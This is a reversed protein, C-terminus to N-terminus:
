TGQHLEIEGAYGHCIEQIRARMRSVEAELREPSYSLPAYVFLGTTTTQETVATRLSDTIPTGFPGDADALLYRGHLNIESDGIARYTEGAMGQRLEIPGPALCDFDYIGIPLLIDLSFWNGIDVLTNISPLPKKKLVRNLLKESSPRHKTPDIGLQRFLERSTQVGEVSGPSTVGRDVYQEVYRAASEQILRYGADSDSRVTIGPVVLTAMRIPLTVKLNITPIQEDASM